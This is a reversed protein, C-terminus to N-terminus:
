ARRGKLAAAITRALEIALRPDNGIRIKLDEIKAELAERKADNTLLEGAELLLRGLARRQRAKEEPDDIVIYRGDPQRAM